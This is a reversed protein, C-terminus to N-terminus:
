HSMLLKPSVAVARARLHVSVSLFDSAARCIYLEQKVFSFLLNLDCSDDMLDSLALSVSTDCVSLDEAAFASVALGLEAAAPDVIGGEFQSINVEQPSPAVLRFPRQQYQIFADHIPRLDGQIPKISRRAEINQAGM